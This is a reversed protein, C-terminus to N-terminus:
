TVPIAASEPKQLTLFSSSCAGQITIVQEISKIGTAMDVTYDFAPLLDSESSSWYSGEVTNLTSLYDLL